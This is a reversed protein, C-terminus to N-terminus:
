IRLRLVPNNEAVINNVQLWHYSKPEGEKRWARTLGVCLFHKWGKILNIAANKFMGENPASYDANYFRVDTVTLTPTFNGDSIKIRVKGNNLFLFPKKPPAYIGLSSNGLGCDVVCSQKHPKLEPGFIAALSQKSHTKLLNWMENGSLFKVLKVNDPNFIHDEVEPPTGKPSVKGLDLMAGFDFLGGNISLLSNSLMGYKLVPRVNAGTAADIGAACFFGPQM